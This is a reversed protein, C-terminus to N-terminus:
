GVWGARRSGPGHLEIAEGLLGLLGDDGGLLEGLPHLAGHQVRLVEKGGEQIGVVPDGGLREPAQAHVEGREAALKGSDQRSRARIWPPARLTSGRALRSMSRACSSARRSPSSYVEM